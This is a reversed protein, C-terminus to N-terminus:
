NFSGIPIIGSAIMAEEQAKEHLAKLCASTAAGAIRERDRELADALNPHDAAVQALAEKVGANFTVRSASDPVLFESYIRAKVAKNSIFM